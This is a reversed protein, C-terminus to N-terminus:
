SKKSLYPVVSSGKVLLYRIQFVTQWAKLATEKTEDDTERALKGLSGQLKDSFHVVRPQPVTRRIRMDRYRAAFDSADGKDEYSIDELSFYHKVIDILDAELGM